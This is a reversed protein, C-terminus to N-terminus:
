RFPNVFSVVFQNFTTTSAWEWQFRIIMWSLMVFELSM